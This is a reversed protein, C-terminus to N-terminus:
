GVRGLDEDSLGIGQAEFEGAILGLLAIEEGLVERELRGARLEGWLGVLWTGFSRFVRVAM